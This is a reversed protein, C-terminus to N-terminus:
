GNVSPYHQKFAADPLPCVSHLVTNSIQDSARQADHCEAKSDGGAIPLVAGRRM